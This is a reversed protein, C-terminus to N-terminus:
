LREVNEKLQKQSVPVGTIFTVKEKLRDTAIKDNGDYAVDKLIPREKVNFTLTVGDGSTDTVVSIDDFFDTEYLGKIDDRVASASYIDGTKLRIKSLITSTEIRRNGSVEIQIIHSEVEAHGQTSFLFCMAIFLILIIPFSKLRYNM